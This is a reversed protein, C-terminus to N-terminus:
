ANSADENQPLLELEQFETILDFLFDAIESLPSKVEAMQLSFDALVTIDKGKWTLSLLSVRGTPSIPQLKGTTPRGWIHYRRWRIRAEATIVM